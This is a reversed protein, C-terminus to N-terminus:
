HRGGRRELPGGGPSSIEGQPLLRLRMDGADSGASGGAALFQKANKQLIEIAVQTAWDLKKLELAKDFQTIVQEVIDAGKFEDMKGLLSGLALSRYYYVGILYHVRARMFPDEAGEALNALHEQNRSYLADAESLYKKAVPHNKDASLFSRARALLREAKWFDAEFTKLRIQPGFVKQEEKSAVPLDKDALARWDEAFRAERIKRAIGQASKNIEAARRANSEEQVQRM